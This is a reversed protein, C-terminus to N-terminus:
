SLMTSHALFQGHRNRAIDVYGTWFHVIKVKDKRCKYSKLTLNSVFLIARRKFQKGGASILLGEMEREMKFANM